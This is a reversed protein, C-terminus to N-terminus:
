SALCQRVGDEFRELAADVDEATHATSLFMPTLQNPCFYVGRRQMAQQLALYKEFDCYKRVERYNGLQDRAQNTLFLSVIPGVQQITHLVGLGTLIDELGRALRRGVANLHAYIEDRHASIEDLVAEAAALSGANGDGPGDHLVRGITVAEMLDRSGGCAAVPFGCGLAKSIVTIDPRVGYLEQAGGPAVRLGTIVEDFVLLVGEDRTARRVCELFEPRPPICGANCMIPELIVAAVHRGHRKLFEEITAQDNSRVVVLDRPEGNMGRTGAIAPGFAEQPLEALPAHYRHFLPDSWGHCHGEFVVIKSRGTITRALRVALNCAETGSGAFRLREMSPFLTRIKEAVRVGIETPFGLQSGRESIQRTVADIVQSPRHGLLLSGFAMNLDLYANGEIDWVRSGRGRDAVLPLQHAVVHMASSDGGALLGRAHEMFRRNGDTEFAGSRITTAMLM